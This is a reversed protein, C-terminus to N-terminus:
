SQGKDFPCGVKALEVLELSSPKIKEFFSVVDPLSKKRCSLNLRVAKGSAPGVSCCVFGVDM